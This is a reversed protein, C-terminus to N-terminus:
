RQISFTEIGSGLHPPIDNYGRTSVYLDRGDPSVAMDYGIPQGGRACYRPPLYNLRTPFLCGWHGALPTLSDRAVRLTALAGSAYYLTKGDPTIALRAAGPGFPIPCPRPPDAACILSREPLLQGSPTPRYLDVTASSEGSGRNAFKTSVLVANGTPEAVLDSIAEARQACGILSLAGTRSVGFTSLMGSGTDESDLSGTSGAYLHSRDNSLSLATETELCPVAACGDSGGANACGGKGHLESVGGTAPNRSLAVLAGREFRGQPRTGFAYVIRNGAAVLLTPSTMGRLHVCARRSTDLCGRTGALRRIAGTAPDRAFALIGHLTTVYLSRGDPSVIMGPGDLTEGLGLAYGTYAADFTCGERRDSRICGARGSLQRLRGARRDRALM